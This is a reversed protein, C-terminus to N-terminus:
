LGLLGGGGEKMFGGALRLMRSLRLARRLKERREPRLYPQMALLLAESRSAEARPGSGMLGALLPMVGGDSSPVAEKEEAKEAEERGGGMLQQAMQAIGAMQEPDSLIASIKAGLDEDM